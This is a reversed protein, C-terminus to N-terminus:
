RIQGRLGVMAFCGILAVSSEGSFSGKDGSAIAAYTACYSDSIRAFACIYCKHIVVLM